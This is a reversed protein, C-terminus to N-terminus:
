GRAQIKPDMTVHVLSLKCQSSILVGGPVLPLPNQMFVLEQLSEAEMQCWLTGKEVNHVSFIGDVEDRFSHGRYWAVLVLGASQCEVFIM